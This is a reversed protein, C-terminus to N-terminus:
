GYAATRIVPETSPEAERRFPAIPPLLYLATDSRWIQLAFEEAYELLVRRARSDGMGAKMRMASRLCRLCVPIRDGTPEHVLVVTRPGVARCCSCERDATPTGELPQGTEDKM